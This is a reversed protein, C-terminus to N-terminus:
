GSVCTPYKKKCVKAALAKFLIDLKVKLYGANVDAMKFLVSTMRINKTVNSLSLVIHRGICGILLLWIDHARPLIM